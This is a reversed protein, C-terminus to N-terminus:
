RIGIGLKSRRYASGVVLATTNIQENNEGQERDFRASPVDEEWDKFGTEWKELDEDTADWLHIINQKSFDIIQLEVGEKLTKITKFREIGSLQNFDLMKREKYFCFLRIPKVGIVRSYLSLTIYTYNLSPKYYEQM